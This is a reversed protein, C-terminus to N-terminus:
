SSYHVEVPELLQHCSNASAATSCRRPVEEVVLARQIEFFPVGNITEVIWSTHTNGAKDPDDVGLNTSKEFQGLRKM